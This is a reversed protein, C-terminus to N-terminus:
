ITGMFASAVPRGKCRLGEVGYYAGVGVVVEAAIGKVQVFLQQGTNFPASVEIDRDGTHFFVTVAMQRALEEEGPCRLLQIIEVVYGVPSYLLSLAPVCLDDGYPLHLAVLLDPGVPQFLVIFVGHSIPFGHFGPASPVKVKDGDDQAFLSRKPPKQLTIIDRYVAQPM